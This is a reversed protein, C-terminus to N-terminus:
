RLVVDTWEDIWRDRNEAITDFDIDAPEAPPDAFEFAGPLAAGELVPFVCMDDPFAEQFRQSLMFDVFKRALAEVPTGALIGAFEIQEFAGQAPSINGTPPEDLPTEAFIVECAPSTTYSVVLPNQGGYASFDTYYAESWGDRIELDNARLGAWFDLYTYDGDEGFTAVTAALFALGPSSTAPNQAVLLGRWEEGTLDELSSPPELGADDLAARDYNLNVYGYDIPTVCPSLQFREPVNELAPSEYEVFIEEELARGLFTNDVGFLVDGTPNGRALVASNVVAGGDGAQILEIEVNNEDEFEALVDEDILFSEHTLLRM